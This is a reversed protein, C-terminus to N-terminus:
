IHWKAFNDLLLTKKDQTIVDQADSDYDLLRKDFYTVEQVFPVKVYLGPETVTRVPKGLQVVIATQIVDVVFLPSAGLIFLGLFVVILAIILGQKTM